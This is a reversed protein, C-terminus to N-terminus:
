RLFPSSVKPLLLRSLFFFSAAVVPSPPRAHYMPDGGYIRTRISGDGIARM